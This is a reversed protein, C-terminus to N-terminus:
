SGTRRRLVTVLTRAPALHRLLRGDLMREVVPHQRPLPWYRAHDGPRVLELFLGHDTALRQLRRLSLNQTRMGRLKGYRFRRDDSLWPAHALVGFWRDAVAVPLWPPGVIALHQEVPWLRNPTALLVVGGPALVRVLESLYRSPDPTHEIVDLSEVVDFSADDFPLDVGETLVVAAGELGAVRLGALRAYTPDVEVGVKVTAGHDHYALLSGGFGCGSSLVREGLLPHYRTILEAWLYFRDTNLFTYAMQEHNFQGRAESLHEQVADEFAPPNPTRTLPRGGSRPLPSRRPAFAIRPAGRRRSPRTRAGNCGGIGRNGERRRAAGADAAGTEREAIGRPM